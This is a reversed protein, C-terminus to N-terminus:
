HSTILRVTARAGTDTLVQAAYLGIPLGSLDLTVQSAAMAPVWLVTRGAMDKVEVASILASPSRLDFLGDVSPNPFVIVNPPATLEEVSVPVSEYRFRYSGCYSFSAASVRLVITDPNATYVYVTDYGIDGNEGTNVAENLGANLTWLSLAPSPGATSSAITIRMTGAFGKWLKFHDYASTGIYTIHGDQDTDPPVVTADASGENPEPDNGFAPPVLEFRMRYSIGCGNANAPQVAVKILGARVCNFYFTDVGAVSSAGVPVQISSNLQDVYVNVLGTSITDHQEAEAIVRLTGEDPLTLGYWDWTGDGFFSLHGEVPTNLAIPQPNQPDDNPGADNAFVQAIQEIRLRYSIGCANANANAVRVRVLQAAFCRVMFTDATSVHDAGIPLYYTTNNVDTYINLVGTTATDAHEAEAIIRLTGDVPLTLGYWDQTNDYLHELHGEFTQGLAVMQPNQPDDNSTVDNAFVAADVSWSMTYSTCSNNGPIENFQLRVYMTDGSLCSHSFSTITPALTAPLTHYQQYFGSKPFLAFQLDAPDIGSGQSTVNFSIVGDNPLVIRFIDTGFGPPCESGSMTQGYTWNNAQVFSENPEVENQQACLAFPLLGLIVGTPFRIPM